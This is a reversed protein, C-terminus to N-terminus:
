VVYNENKKMRIKMIIRKRKKEKIRNMRKSVQMTAGGGKGCGTGDAKEDGREDDDELIVVGAKLLERAEEM